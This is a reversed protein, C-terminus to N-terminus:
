LESSVQGATHHVCFTEGQIEVAADGPNSGCYLCREQGTYDSDLPDKDGSAILAAEHLIEFREQEPSNLVVNPVKGMEDKLVDKVKAWEDEHFVKQYQDSGVVKYEDDDHFSKSKSRKSSSSSSSGGADDVLDDLGM